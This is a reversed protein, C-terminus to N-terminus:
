AKGGFRSAIIEWIKGATARGLTKPLVCGFFLAITMWPIGTSKPTVVGIHILFEAVGYLAAQAIGVIMGWDELRRSHTPQGVKGLMPLARAFGTETLPRSESREDSM